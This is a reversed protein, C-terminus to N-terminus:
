KSDSGISRNGEPLPKGAGGSSGGSSSGGSSSGGSGQSPAPASGGGKNSSGFFFKGVTYGGGLIAGAGGLIAGPYKTATESASISQFGANNALIGTVIGNAKKAVIFGGLILLLKSFMNVFPSDFLVLDSSMVVPIFLLLVRMALVTGLVSLAQVVFATAWQKRKEGDDWPEIAFVLPGLIYLFLMMFIRSICEFIIVTLNWAIAIIGLFVVLYDYSGFSLDFDKRVTDFDYIDKDGFYYPGRLGDTFSAATNYYSNKAATFTGTLFLYRDLPVSDSATMQYSREYHSIPRVNPNTRLVTVAKKIADSVDEYYVDMKLDKTLNASHAIDQLISQWTDIVEGKTNVTVYYFDFVGQKNLYNLDGRIENFCSNINLTSTYSESLSYNGITNLIRGMAAYQEDSFDISNEKGLNEANDFVYTIQTLLRNTLTIVVLIFFNMSAIFLISKLLSGIIQGLSRPDKDRGDFMKRIVAAIAMAFALVFGILAFAWYVNSVTQNSFFVNILSTHSEGYLVKKEGSFVRYMQDLYYIIKCPGTVLYYMLRYITNELINEFASSLADGIADGVSDLADTIFDM